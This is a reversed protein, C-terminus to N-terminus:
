PKDLRKFYVLRDKELLQEDLICAELFYSNECTKLTQALAYLISKM